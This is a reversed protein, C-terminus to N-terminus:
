MRWSCHGRSSANSGSHPAPRNHCAGRTSCSPLARWSHQSRRSVTRQWTDPSTHSASRSITRACPSIVATRSQNRKLSQGSIMKRMACAQSKMSQMFAHRAPCPDPEPPYDPRGRAPLLQILFRRPLFAGSKKDCHQRLTDKAQRRVATRPLASLLTATEARSQSVARTIHKGGVSSM